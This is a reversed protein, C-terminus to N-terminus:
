YSFPMNTLDYGDRIVQNVTIYWATIDVQEIDRLVTPWRDEEDETEDGDGLDYGVIREAVIDYFDNLGREHDAHLYGTLEDGIRLEYGDLRMDQTVALRLSSADQNNYDLPSSISFFDLLALGDPLMYEVDDRTMTDPSNTTIISRDMTLTLM